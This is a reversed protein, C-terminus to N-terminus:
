EAPDLYRAATAAPSRFHVDHAPHWARREEDERQRNVRRLEEFSHAAEADKHRPYTSSRGVLLFRCMM